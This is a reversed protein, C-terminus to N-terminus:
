TQISNYLRVLKKEIDLTTENQNGNIGVGTVHRSHHPISTTKHVHKSLYQEEFSRHNNRYDNTHHFKKM